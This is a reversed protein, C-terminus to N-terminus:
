LYVKFLMSLFAEGPILHPKKTPEAVKKGPYVKQGQKGLHLYKIYNTTKFPNGPSAEIFKIPFSEPNTTVSGGKPDPDDYSNKM